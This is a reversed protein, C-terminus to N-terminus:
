RCVLRRLGPGSVRGVSVSRITSHHHCLGGAAGQNQAPLYQFSVANTHSGEPHSLSGSGGELRRSRREM